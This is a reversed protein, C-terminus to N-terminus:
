LNVKDILTIFNKRYDIHGLDNMNYNEIRKNYNNGIILQSRGIPDKKICSKFLYELVNDNKSYCNIIRGTIIKNFMEEWKQNNKIHTAGAIFTVTNIINHNFNEISDLEKLCYKIVHCGLSFGILDVQCNGFFKRSALILALIRGSYSARKKASIFINPLSSNIISQGLFPIINGFVKFIIKGISDGPWQYFYYMGRRNSEILQKWMEPHNDKEAGFGSIVIIIKNSYYNISYPILKIRKRLTKDSFINPFGIFKYIIDMIMPLLNYNPYTEKLKIILEQFRTNLNYENTKILITKIDNINYINNNKQINYNEKIQFYDLYSIMEKLNFSYNGIKGKSYKQINHIVNDLLYNFKFKDNSTNSNLDEIERTICYFFSAILFFLSEKTDINNKFLYKIYGELIEDINNLPFLKFFDILNEYHFIDEKDSISFWSIITQYNKKFIDQTYKNNIIVYANSLIFIRFLIIKYTETDNINEHFLNDFPTTSDSISIYNKSFKTFPYGFTRTFNLWQYFYILIKVNDDDLKNNLNEEYFRISVINKIRILTEKILFKPFNDINFQKKLEAYYLEITINDKSILKKKISKLKKIIKKSFQQCKFKELILEQILNKVIRRKEKISYKRKIYEICVYEKNYFYNIIENENKLNEYENDNFYLVITNKLLEELEKEDMSIGLNPTEGTKTEIKSQNLLEKEM